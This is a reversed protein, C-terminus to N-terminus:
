IRNQIWRLLDSIVANRSLSNLLDHYENPYITLHKDKSGSNRYLFDAGNAPLIQDGEGHMILLPSYLKEVRARTSQVSKLIASLTRLRWRGHYVLADNLYDEVVQGDTSMQQANLRPLLKSTPLLKALMHLVPQFPAPLLQNGGLANGMIVLGTIQPARTLVYNITVLSGLSFGVLFIPIDPYYKTAHQFSLDFDEVLEEIANFFVRRGDSGGHGRYDTVVVAIGSQNLKEAAAQYRGGHECIGHAIVVLAVAPDSPKWIRQKLSNGNAGPLTAEYSQM